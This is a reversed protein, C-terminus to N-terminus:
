KAQPSTPASSNGGPLEGTKPAAFFPDSFPNGEPPAFLPNPKKPPSSCGMGFLVVGMMLLARM